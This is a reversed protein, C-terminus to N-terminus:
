GSVRLLVRETLNHFEQFAQTFVLPFYRVALMLGYYGIIIRLPFGVMFINMEPMIKAMFGLAITVLFLVVYPIAPIRLGFTFTRATGHTIDQLLDQTWQWQGLPCYEFSKSLVWIFTHHLDLSIMILSATLTFVQAVTSQRTGSVPDIIEAMSFGIMVSILQGAMLMSEFLLNFCFGMIYGLALEKVMTAMIIPIALQENIMLERVVFTPTPGFYQPYIVLGILLTVFVTLMTRTTGNIAVNAFLPSVLLVGAVRAGLYFAFLIYEPNHFVPILPLNALIGTM